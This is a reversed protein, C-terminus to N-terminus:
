YHHPFVYTEALLGMLFITHMGNSGSTSLDIYSDVAPDKSYCLHSFPFYVCSHLHLCVNHKLNDVMQSSTKSGFICIRKSDTKVRGQLVIM